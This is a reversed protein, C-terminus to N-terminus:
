TPIAWIASAFQGTWDKRWGISLVMPHPFTSYCRRIARRFHALPPALHPVECNISCSLRISSRPTANNGSAAAEAEQLDVLMQLTREYLAQGSETILVRRTTRNLLRADRHAKLLAVHRSVASTSINMREAAGVFSGQEVVKVFVTMALLRDLAM